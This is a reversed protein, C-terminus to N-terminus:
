EITITRAVENALAVLEPHPRWAAIVVHLCFARGEASFFKQAGLRRGMRRPMRSSDFDAPVLPLPLGRHAFLATGASERGYEFLIVLVDGPQMAVVADTGFDGRGPPLPFTAAHVVVRPATRPAPEGGADPSYIEGDWGRPLDIAVGHSRLESM